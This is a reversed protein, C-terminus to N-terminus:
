LILSNRSITKFNQKLIFNSFPKPALIHGPVYTKQFNVLQCIESLLLNYNQKQKVTILVLSFLHFYKNLSCTDSAPSLYQSDVKKNSNFLKDKLKPGFLLFAALSINECLM